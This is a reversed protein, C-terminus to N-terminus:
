HSLGDRSAPCQSKFHNKMELTTTKSTHRKNTGVRLVLVPAFLCTRLRREVCSQVARYILWTAIRCVTVARSFSCVAGADAGAACVCQLALIHEIKQAAAPSSAVPLLAAQM